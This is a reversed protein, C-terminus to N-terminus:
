FDKVIRRRMKIDRKSITVRKAHIALLNADELVEVLYAEAAEQLAMIAEHTWRLMKQTDRMICKVLNRFTVKPILLDTSTQYKRIERLAAVGPKKRRKVPLKVPRNKPAKGTSPYKRATYKINPGSRKVKVPKVPPSPLEDAAGDFQPGVVSGSCLPSPNSRPVEVSRVLPEVSGGGPHGSPTSDEMRTPSHHPTLDSASVPAPSIPELGDYLPICNEVSHTPSDGPTPFNIVSGSTLQDLARNVASHRAVEDLIQQAVLLNTELNEQRVEDSLPVDDQLHSFTAVEMGEQRSSTCVQM